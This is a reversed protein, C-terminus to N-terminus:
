MTRMTPCYASSSTSYVLYRGAEAGSMPMPACGALVVLLFAGADSRESASCPTVM